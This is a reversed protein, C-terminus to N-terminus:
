EKVGRVFERHLFIQSSSYVFISSFFIQFSVTIGCLVRRLGLFLFSTDMFMGM